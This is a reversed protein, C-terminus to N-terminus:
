HLYGDDDAFLYAPQKLSDPIGLERFIVAGVILKIQRLDIPAAGVVCGRELIMEMDSENLIGLFQLQLLYGYAKTSFHQREKLSLVRISDGPKMMEVLPQVESQIHDIVWSYAYSIESDTFGQSRLDASIDDFSEVQGQTDRIHAMIQVVIELLRDGM